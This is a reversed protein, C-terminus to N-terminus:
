FPFYFLVFNQFVNKYRSRLQDLSEIVFSIEHQTVCCKVLKIHVVWSNVFALSCVFGANKLSICKTWQLRFADPPVM